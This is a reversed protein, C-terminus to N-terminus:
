TLSEVTNWRMRTKLDALKDHFEQKLDFVSDNIEKEL